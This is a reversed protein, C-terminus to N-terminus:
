ENGFSKMSRRPFARIDNSALTRIPGEERKSTMASLTGIKRFQPTAIGCGM